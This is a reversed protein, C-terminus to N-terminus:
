LILVFVLLSPILELISSSRSKGDVAQLFGHYTIFCIVVASAIIKAIKSNVYLNLEEIVPLQIKSTPPPSAETMSPEKETM